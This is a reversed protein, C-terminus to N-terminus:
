ASQPRLLASRRPSRRGQSRRARRRITKQAELAVAERIKRLMLFATKTNCGIDRGFQLSSAGKADKAFLCLGMLLDTFTMKRWSFITGATASFQHSCGACKFRRGRTVNYYEVSGCRPCVPSGGTEPWRLKCFTKFAKEEDMARVRRVSLTRTASVLFHHAM